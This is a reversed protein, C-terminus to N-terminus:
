RPLVVPLHIEQLVGGRDSCTTHPAAARGEGGAARWPQWGTTSLDGASSFGRPLPQRRRPLQPPAAVPPAAHKTSSDAVATRRSQRYASPCHHTPPTGHPLHSSSGNIKKTRSLILNISVSGVRLHTRRTRVHPRLRKRLFIKGSVKAPARAGSCLLLSHHPGGGMKDQGKGVDEKMRKKRGVTSHRVACGWSWRGGDGGAAAASKGSLGGRV